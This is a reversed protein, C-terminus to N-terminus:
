AKPSRRLILCRAYELPYLSHLPRRLPSPAAVILTPPPTRSFSRMKYEGAAVLSYFGRHGSWSWSLCDNNEDLTTQFLRPLRQVEARGHNDRRHVWLWTSATRAAQRDGKEKRVWRWLTLFFSNMWGSVELQPDHTGLEASEDPGCIGRRLFRMFSRYWNRDSFFAGTINRRLIPNPRLLSYM